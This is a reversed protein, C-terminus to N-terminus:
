DHKADNKRWKTVLKDVAQNVADQVLAYHLFAILGLAIALWAEVEMAITAVFICLLSTMAGFFLQSLRKADANMEGECKGPMKRRINGIVNLPWQECPYSRICKAFVGLLWIGFSFGVVLVLVPMISHWITIIKM